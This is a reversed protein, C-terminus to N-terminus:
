EQLPFQPGHCDIPTPCFYTCSHRLRVDKRIQEHAALSRFKIIHSSKHATCPAALPEVLAGSLSTMHSRLHEAINSNCTPHWPVPANTLYVFSTAEVAYIMPPHHHSGFAWVVNSLVKHLIDLGCVLYSHLGLCSLASHPFEM